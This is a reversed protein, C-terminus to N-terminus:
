PLKHQSPSYKGTEELDGHLIKWGFVCFYATEKIPIDYDATFSQSMEIRTISIYYHMEM